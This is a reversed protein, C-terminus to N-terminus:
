FYISKEAIHNILPKTMRSDPCPLFQFSPSKKLNTLGM